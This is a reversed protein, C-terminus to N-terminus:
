HKTWYNFSYLTTSLAGMIWGKEENTLENSKDIAEKYKNILFAVDENESAYNELVDEFLKMAYNVKSDEELIINKGQTELMKNYFDEFEKSHLISNVLLQEESNLEQNARTGPGKVHEIKITTTDELSALLLNHNKGVELQDLSLGSSETVTSDLRIKGVANPNTIKYRKNTIANLKELFESYPLDSIRVTYGPSAMWSKFGGFAIAGITAGFVAGQIPSGLALGVRAGVSYGASGGVLAGEADAFIVNVWQKTTWGRTKTRTSKISDNFVKLEQLLPSKELEINQKTVDAYNENTSSCSSIIFLILVVM